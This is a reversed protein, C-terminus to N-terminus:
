PFSLGRWYGREPDIGSLKAWQSNARIKRRGSTKRQGPLSFKTKTYHSMGQLVSGVGKSNDPDSDKTRISTPASCLLLITLESKQLLTLLQYQGQAAVAEAQREM